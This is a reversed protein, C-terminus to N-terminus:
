PLLTQVAERNAKLLMADVIEQVFVSYDEYRDIGGPQLTTKVYIVHLTVRRGPSIGFLQSSRTTGRVKAALFRTLFKASIPITLIYPDEFMEEDLQESFIPVRSVPVGAFEVTASPENSFLGFLSSMDTVVMTVNSAGASVAQPVGSGGTYLEDVVGVFGSRAALNLLDRSAGVAGLEEYVARASPFMEGGSEALAAWPTVELDLLSTALALTTSASVGGLFASSAAAVDAVPLAGSRKAASRALDGLPPSDAHTEWLGFLAAATYRLGSGPPIDGSLYPFPAESDAGAGLIVSYMAPLYVPAVGDLAGAPAMSYSLADLGASVSVPSGLTGAAVSHCVLWAKGMLWPPVPDGLRLDPSLGSTTNLLARVFDAWSRGRGWFLSVERLRQGVFTGRTASLLEGFGVDGAGGAAARGFAIWDAMWTRQFEAGAAEPSAAMREIMAQFRPSYALESLFWTSGSASALTDFRDLVGAAALTPAAGDAGRAAAVLGAVLGVDAAMARFGGGAFAIAVKARPPPEGDSPEEAADRPADARAALAWAFVLAAPLRLAGAM